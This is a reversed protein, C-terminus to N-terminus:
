KKHVIIHLEIKDETEKSAKIEVKSEVKSEDIDMTQATFDLVSPEFQHDELDKKARLNALEETVKQMPIITNNDPGEVTKCELFVRKTCTKCINYDLKAFITALAKGKSRFMNEEGIDKIYGGKVFLEYLGEKVRYLYLAGGAEKLKKAQQGLFEAGAVDIFNVGSAVIMLHKQDPNKLRETEIIQRVHDIAGFFLSGDIRIIKLQPCEPLDPHTTFSRAPSNPDPVRWLVRPRSTRYLYVMLSLLVGILIAVELDILLTSLFTIILVLSESRSAHLIEKIHKFDILGYAVLFLIGAMAAHPLYAVWSKVLLLVGLLLIGAFVAALPTKAGSEYNVGSRNFSGTAVYASFFSGVINSLGQGIFEQNSNLYQGSRAALSRAISVAETLAFLTIAFSATILDRWIQWNSFDPSSLPPMASPLAGVTTIGTVEQGIYYNLFCSVVSGTVLAALMYPVQPVFRKILVGSIITSFAVVTVYINIDELHIFFYEWIHFFETGSPIPLGFFNKLQNSAILLAAGATFGIIVSHSIFNVLTGLRALGMLLQTVGVIFTLTLAFVVYQSTYPEAFQSLVSFLVISAATTPGSVLHWSSGYLAAVIAPVIGAYLGYEPPMGAITAFAIGQPLVVVAGTLGAFFDQRMTNGNVRDKWALFPFLMTLWNHM